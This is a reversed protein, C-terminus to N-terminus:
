SLGVEVASDATDVSECNRKALFAEDDGGIEVREMTRAWRKQEGGPM